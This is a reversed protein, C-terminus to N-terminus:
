QRDTDQPDHRDRNREKPPQPKEEAAPKQPQPREVNPREAAHQRQENAQAAARQRDVDVQQRSAREREQNQQERVQPRDEQQRNPLTRPIYKPHETPPAAQPAVQTAAGEVQPQAVRAPRDVHPRVVPVPEERGNQLNPTTQANPVVRPNLPRNREAPQVADRNENSRTNVDSGSVPRPRNVPDNSGAGVQPRNTHEAQGGSRVFRAAAPPPERKVVVQRTVVTQPPMRVNRRAENGGLRSERVPDIRPAMATTRSVVRDDIRIRQGGVRQSSTFTTRSVATVAGPVGRNRYTVNTNRNDYVNTIYTRNVIVTNSVNVREVYRSSYRRAPVYVERPGLPFWAVGAAGPSGVWGVLAPAYVARQHRPGPVWCWRERVHAWRGYHFPAYGWPADDIWTWGWPAVYTWRGYQYPSWGVAVVRPTWVYGYEAESSWSGNDDLDQYGTVDPSVYQASQSRSAQDDRRERELTWSDFEDPSGLTGLQAVFQDTGRFTAMQQAHVVVSQSGDSVEAAGESVKVVSTDGADNVEVRYNGPRLVSLAMNPTDIEIQDNGDLARVNVDVVGATIRMQITDDDVNLFSFGTNSSLRVAAQGVYIEARAGQDTWLKDGTTLPRNVMADTWEDEGAPQLSVDGRLYSLRAARDPPDADQPGYDQDNQAHALGFALCLSLAALGRFASSTLKNINPKM